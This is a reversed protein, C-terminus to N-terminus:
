SYTDPCSLINSLGVAYKGFGPGAGYVCLPYQFINTKRRCSDKQCCRPHQVTHDSLAGIQSYWSRCPRDADIQIYLLCEAHYMNNAM